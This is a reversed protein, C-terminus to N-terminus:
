EGAHIPLRETPCIVGAHIPLRETPCIVGAHILLFLRCVGLHFQFNEALHIVDPHIETSRNM